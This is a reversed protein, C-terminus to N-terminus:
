VFGIGNLQRPLTSNAPYPYGGSFAVLVEFGQRILLLGVIQAVQWRHRWGHGLEARGDMFFVGCGIRPKRHFLLRDSWADSRKHHWQNGSFGAADGTADGTGGPAAAVTGAPDAVATADTVGVTVGCLTVGL